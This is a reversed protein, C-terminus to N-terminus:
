DGGIGDRGNQSDASEFGGHRYFRGSFGGGDDHRGFKRLVGPVAAKEHAIGGQKGDNGRELTEHSERMVRNVSM